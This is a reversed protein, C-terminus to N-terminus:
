QIREWNLQWAEHFSAETPLAQITKSSRHCSCYDFSPDSNLVLWRPYDTQKPWLYQGLGGVRLNLCSDQWDVFFPSIQIRQWWEILRSYSMRFNRALYANKWRIDSTDFEAQRDEICKTSLSFTITRIPLIDTSWIDKSVRDSSLFRCSIKSPWRTWITVLELRLSQDNSRVQSIIPRLHCSMSPDNIARWNISVFEFPKRDTDTKRGIMNMRLTKLRSAKWESLNPAFACFLMSGDIDMSYINFPLWDDRECTSIMEGSRKFAFPWSLTPPPTDSWFEKLISQPNDIYASFGSDWWSFNNGDFYTSFWDLSAIWTDHWSSGEQNEMRTRVERIARILKRQIACIPSCAWLHSAFYYPLRWNRFGITPSFHPAPIRDSSSAGIPSEFICLEDSINRPRSPSFWLVSKINVRSWHKFNQKMYMFPSLSSSDFINNLFRFSGHNLGTRDTVQVDKKVGSHESNGWIIFTYFDRKSMDLYHKMARRNSRCQRFLHQFLPSISWVTDGHLVVNAYWLRRNSFM